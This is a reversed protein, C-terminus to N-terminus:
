GTPPPGTLDIRRVVSGDAALWEVASPPRADAAFYNDRVPATTERDGSVLRVSAVGDPVLGSVSGSGTSIARGSRIKPATHCANASFGDSSREFLCVANTYSAPDIGPVPRGRPDRPVPIREFPVLVVGRARDLVRVGDLNAGEYGPLRFNSAARSTQVGRDASGQPRRLVGLTARLEPDLGQGSVTPAPFRKNAGPDDFPNWGGVTAAAAPVAVLLAALALGARRVRPGQFRRGVRNRLRADRRQRAADVLQREYSEIFTM